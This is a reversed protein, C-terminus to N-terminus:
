RLPRSLCARQGAWISPLMGLICNFIHGNPVKRSVLPPKSATHRRSATDVTEEFIGVSNQNGHGPKMKHLQYM